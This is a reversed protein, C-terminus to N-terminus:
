LLMTQFRAFASRVALSTMKGSAQYIDTEYFGDAPTAIAVSKGRVLSTSPQTLTEQKYTATCGSLISIFVILTAFRM